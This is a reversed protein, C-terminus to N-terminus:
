LLVTGFNGRLGVYQNRSKINDSGSEDALDVQWEFLYLVELENELKLDGKVGFRSANSKLETFSGQGEDASQASINAKGYVTVPDAYSVASFAATAMALSLTNLLKM